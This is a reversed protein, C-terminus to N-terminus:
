LGPADSCLWLALSLSLFRAFSLLIYLWLDLSTKPLCLLSQKGSTDSLLSAECLLVPSFLLLSFHLNQTSFFLFSSLLPYLPSFSLFSSSSVPFMAVEKEGECTSFSIKIFKSHHVLKFHNCFRVESVKFCLM